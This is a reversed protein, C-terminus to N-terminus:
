DDETTEWELEHTEGNTEVEIESEEKEQCGAPALFLATILLSAVGLSTLRRLM